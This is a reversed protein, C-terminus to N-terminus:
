LNGYGTKTLPQVKVARGEVSIRNEAILQMVKPYLEREAAQVRAALTEPTDDGLVPVASQAIIAGHDYESDVFHVTCGTIKCGHALVAEHVKHGYCGKGGFSPLLAPHVNIVRGQYESPILLLSMFGALVVLDPQYPAIKEFIARSFEGADKCQRREVAFAPINRGRARELGYADARSSGVVVVDASLEGTERKQFVNELTTGSGSLLVALRLNPM